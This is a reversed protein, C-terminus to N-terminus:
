SFRYRVKPDDPRLVERCDGDYFCIAEGPGMDEPRMWILLGQSEVVVCEELGPPPLLKALVDELEPLYNETNM